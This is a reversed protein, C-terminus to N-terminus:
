ETDLSDVPIPTPALGMIGISLQTGTEGSELGSARRAMRDAIDLDKWNNPPKVKTQKFARHAKDFAVQRHDEGRDAWTKLIANKTNDGLRGLPGTLVPPLNEPNRIQPIPWRERRARSEITSVSVNFEEATVKYSAGNLMALLIGEWNPKM